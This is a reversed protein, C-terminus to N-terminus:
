YQKVLNNKANPGFTITATGVNKATFYYEKTFSDTSIDNQDGGALISSDSSSVSYTGWLNNTSVIIKVNSGVTVSKLSTSISASGASVSKQFIILCTLFIIIKIKKMLGCKRNHYQM